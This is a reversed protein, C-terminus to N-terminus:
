VGGGVVGGGVWGVGWGGGEARAGLGCVRCWICGTLM